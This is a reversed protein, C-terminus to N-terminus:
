ELWGMLYTEWNIKKASRIIEQKELLSLKGKKVLRQLKNEFKKGRTKWASNWLHEEQRSM